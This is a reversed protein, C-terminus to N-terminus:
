NRAVADLLVERAMKMPVSIYKKEMYAIIKELVERSNEDLQELDKAFVSGLATSKIERIALPISQMAREIEREAFLREFEKVGAEIIPECDTLAQTRYSINESALRQVIEMGVYKVNFDSTISPQIDAPLALDIVLKKDDEGQLLAHYLASDVIVGPAGTCSVLADFGRTVTHLESLAIAQANCTEALMEANALSRNAILIRTYGNEQLFKCFNRIIQGAGILVVRQHPQIGANLFQQWALSVVSVPKRSLDTHTFIEKATKVCQKIVIRLNDGTLGASQSDEYSTRLQTIIEREGIVVSELSSAVRLLHEVAEPGNFRACQTAVERIQAENWDPRIEQLIGATLGPCVYHGLTFIIEVRNCTALYMLESMGFKEKLQHLKEARVEPQMYFAGVTELPFDRHSIAIVRIDNV